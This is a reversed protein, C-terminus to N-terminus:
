DESTEEGIEDTEAENKVEPAKEDAAPATISEVNVNVAAVSFGTMAEVDAKVKSQVNWSVDPIKAGYEVIIALDLTVNNGDKTIKVGKSNNKKGILEAFNGAVSTAMSVVGEVEAAAMSAIVAVVEDAINVSGNSEINTNNEM